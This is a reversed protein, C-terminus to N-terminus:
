LLRTRTGRRNAEDLSGSLIKQEIGKPYGAPTEWGANMDLTHFEDHKKNVAMAENGGRCSISSTPRRTQRSAALVDTNDASSSCHIAVSPRIKTCILSGASSFRTTAAPTVTTPRASSRLSP